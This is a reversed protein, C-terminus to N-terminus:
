RGRVFLKRCGEIGKILTKRNARTLPSWHTVVLGAARTKAIVGYWDETNRMLEVKGTDAARANLMSAGIVDFGTKMFNRVLDARGSGYEWPMLIVDRPLSKIAPLVKWREAPRWRHGCDAWMMMRLKRKKLERYLFHLAKRYEDPSRTDDEDMGVHLMSPKMLRAVEDVAKFAQKWLAPSDPPCQEEWLWHSHRHEPSKSFNLKPVVELGLGRALETLEVLEKVPVSYKKRLHPLSKYIVADKIDIILMNFGAAAVGRICERAVALDFRKETKKQKLWSPDYHTLHMLYARYKM